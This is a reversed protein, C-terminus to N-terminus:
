SSRQKKEKPTNRLTLESIGSIRSHYSITDPRGDIILYIGFSEERNLYFDKITLMTGDIKANSLVEETITGNSLKVVQAYVLQKSGLFDIFFSDKFDENTIAYEGTNTVTIGYAYPMNVIIDDYLLQLHNDSSRRAIM